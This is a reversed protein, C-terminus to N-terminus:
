LRDYPHLLQPKVEGARSELVVPMSQGAARPPSPALAEVAPDGAALHPHGEGDPELRRPCSHSTPRSRRRDEGEKLLAAARAQEVDKKIHVAASTLPAALVLGLMGFLSGAGITVILVVLPNLGLTAGYAIPQLIQQLAGNALIVVVLMILADTTGNSGLTILVAFTGAVFAGLYPIFACVFTVIAITGALPVGLILAALGVLIANFAAVISVGAFYRQFAVIVDGTITRGVPTPVGLHGDVWARMSPGGQLLLFLSLMTFSLGLALSAIGSIGTAIGSILTEVADTTDAQATDTASSASSSSIGADQMWASIEDGASSITSSIESSQSTIGGIVMLTILVALALFSLVVIAAAGTRGVHHRGLWHVVPQTVCALLFAVVVPGTIEATAGLLWILGALVLFAGACLWSAVGLDRLWRPAAFVGSLQALQDPDLEVVQDAQRQVHAPDGESEGAPEPLSDGCGGRGAFAGKPAM